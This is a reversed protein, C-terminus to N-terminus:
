VIQNREARRQREWSCDQPLAVWPNLPGHLVHATWVEDATKASPTDRWVLGASLGTIM